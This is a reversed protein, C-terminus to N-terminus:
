SGQWCIARPVAVALSKPKYILGKQARAAAGNALQQSGKGKLAAYGLIEYFQAEM